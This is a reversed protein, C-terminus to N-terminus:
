HILNCYNPTTSRCEAIQYPLGDGTVVEVLADAGPHHKLKVKCYWTSAGSNDPVTLRACRVFAGHNRRRVNRDVRAAHGTSAPRYANDVAESSEPKAGYAVLAAVALIAAAWRIRFPM